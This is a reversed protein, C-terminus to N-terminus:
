CVCLKAPSIDRVSLVCLEAPSLDRVSLVYLEAPSLDRVSLVYLEAPFLDRVILVCLEAPSLDSVSPVYLEAPSLDSVILVYLEAPSLDSVSLVYLDNQPSQSQHFAVFGIVDQFGNAEATLPALYTIFVAFVPSKRVRRGCPRERWWCQRNHLYFKNPEDTLVFDSAEVNIQNLM